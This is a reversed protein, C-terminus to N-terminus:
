CSILSCCHCQCPVPRRHRTQGLRRAALRSRISYSACAPLRTSLRLRFRPLGIPLSHCCHSASLLMTSAFTAFPSDPPNSPSSADLPSTSSTASGNNLDCNVLHQTTSAWTAAFTSCANPLHTSHVPWPVLRPAVCQLSLDSVVARRQALLSEPRPYWILVSAVSAPFLLM